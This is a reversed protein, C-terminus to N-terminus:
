PPVAATAVSWAVAAARSSRVSSPAAAPPTNISIASAACTGMPASRPVARTVCYSQADRAGCRGSTVEPQSQLLRAVEDGRPLAGLVLADGDAMGVAAGVVVVAGVVTVVVPGAPAAQAGAGDFGVTTSAVALPAVGFSPVSSVAAM